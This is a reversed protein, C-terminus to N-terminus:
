QSIYTRGKVKWVCSISLKNSSRAITFCHVVLKSKFRDFLCSTHSNYLIFKLNTIIWYLIHYLRMNPSLNISRATPSFILVLALKHSNLFLLGNLKITDPFPFFIHRCCINFSSLRVSMSNCFCCCKDCNYCYLGGIEM